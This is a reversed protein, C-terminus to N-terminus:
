YNVHLSFVTLYERATKKNRCGAQRNVESQIVYVYFPM